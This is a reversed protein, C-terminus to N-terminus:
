VVIYKPATSDDGVVETYKNTNLTHSVNNSTQSTCYIKDRYLLVSGQKVEFHYSSEVKLITIPVSMTLFNKNISTTINNITQTKRTGDEIIVLSINSAVIYERPIFNITQANSTPLLKIM